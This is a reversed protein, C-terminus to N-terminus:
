KNWGDVQKVSQSENWYDNVSKTRFEAIKVTPFEM